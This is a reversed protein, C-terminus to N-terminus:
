SELWAALGTSDTRLVRHRVGGWRGPVVGRHQGSVIDPAIVVRPAGLQGLARAQRYRYSASLAGDVMGALPQVKEQPMASFGRASRMRRRTSRRRELPPSRQWCKVHASHTRRSPACAQAAARCCSPVARLLCPFCLSLVPPRRHCVRVPHRPPGRRHVHAILPPVLSTPGPALPKPALMHQGHTETWGM